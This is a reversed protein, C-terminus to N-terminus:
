RATGGDDAAGSDAEGEEEDELSNALRLVQGQEEAYSLLIAVVASNEAEIAQQVLDPLVGEQFRPDGLADEVLLRLSREEDPEPTGMDGAHRRCIKTLCAEVATMGAMESDEVRDLATKGLSLEWSIEDPNCVDATFLLEGSDSM